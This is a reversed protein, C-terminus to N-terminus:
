DTRSSSSDDFKEVVSHGTSGSIRGVEAEKNADSEFIAGMVEAVLPGANKVGGGAQELVCVVVYKPDTYPAYAVFWADDNKDVHEATGSKGAVDEVGAAVFNYHLGNDDLLVMDRLAEQVFKLNEPKVDPEYNVQSQFDLVKDGSANRVEKLLHPKMVKGTAIGGYAAALQLPTVLIDGQGIVINTYDGGRWAAASPVNKWQDKKWEPTPVIGASEGIIDVGTLDGFGYLKYYDQLATESIKGAGEPGQSYFGKGIEYFPVDCSIVLGTHLDIKGHGAHNWCLKADNEGFGEWLGGCEWEQDFTAFGYHLAAMSTFPKFTSAAAYQGNVARNLLPSHSEDTNYLDWIDQPIGDSFGSPDFTPYSAMALISGDRMDLAVIAGSVGEGTGIDGEPAIKQALARDAVYQVHADLTLFLDSGKVPATESTIAIVNGAADVMVNRVGKDGSLLSDYYSEVGSKGLVDTSEISRGEKVYELEDKTPSGAYGLAHAALAGYPYQRTTRSEVSVGKFADSHESIFAVDRLRVDSAVVRQNQAGTATDALRQRVVGVPLGLVSSLRRVTDMDNVVDPEALVTQSMRNTILTRGYRDYINGRPAPTSAQTFLNNEAEASFADTSMVQMHWLKAGLTAFVAAAFVGLATFRSAIGGKTSDKTPGGQSTARMQAGEGLASADGVVAQVDSLTAGDVAGLSKRGNTGISAGLDITNLDSVHMGRAQSTGSSTWLVIVIAVIGIAILAAIIGAIVGTLM